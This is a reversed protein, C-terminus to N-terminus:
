ATDPDLTVATLILRDGDREAALDVVLLGPVQWEHTDLTTLWQDLVAGPSAQFHLCHRSGDFCASCWAVSHSDADLGRITCGARMADALVTRQLRATRDRCRIM